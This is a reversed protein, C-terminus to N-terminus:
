AIRLRRVLMLGCGFAKAPGIGNSLASLFAQPETVRLEGEFDLTSVVIGHRGLKRHVRHGDVRLQKADIDCGLRHARELLWSSGAEYAVQNLPPRETLPLDKWGLRNKADMVVDHRVRKRPTEKVRQHNKERNKTWTEVETPNRDRKALKVPNARLKFALRDGVRLDPRYEKTEIRWKGSADEPPVRSLVFFLPLGDSTESRFLFATEVSRERPLDFFKWLLRHQGYPDLGGLGAYGRFGIDPGPAIRTLCYAGGNM